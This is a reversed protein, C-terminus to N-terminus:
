LRQHPCLCFRVASNDFVGKHYRFKVLDIEDVSSPLIFGNDKLMDFEPSTLGTHGNPDELAAKIKDVYEENSKILGTTFTNYLYTTAKVKHWFNFQSKKYTQEM